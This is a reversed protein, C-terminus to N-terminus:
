WPPEESFGREAESSKCCGVDSLDILKGLSAVARRTAQRKGSCTVTHTDCDFWHEVSWWLGVQCKWGVEWSFHEHLNTIEM